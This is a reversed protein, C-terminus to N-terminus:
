RAVKKALPIMILAESSLRESHRQQRWGADVLRVATRGGDETRRGTRSGSDVDADDDQSKETATTTTTTTIIILYRDM